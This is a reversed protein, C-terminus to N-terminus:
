DPGAHEPLNEYYELSHAAKPYGAPLPRGSQTQFYLVSADRWWAAEREQTALFQTVEDFRPSDVLGRLGAWTARMGSVAKVGRDYRHVLENWLTEGDKMKYDWGVHHFWLLYMEPTTEVANWQDRLPARYQGVYNSGRASREFGIGDPGAQHYTTADRNGPKKNHRGWVGPGYHSTRTLLHLGLPTMYDVAAERSGMMMSVVPGVISEANGFTQRTWEEAITRASLDPEWAMRGFVYWNAQDFVSGCWNQDSGVNSVGAIGGLRRHNLSGEVAKAVTSGAGHEYTDATLAEEYLPGLYVLHTQYGLYEKTVEVELMLSTKPMAGFLPSFPERPQFDLPGNKVQLLVNDRFKGDLPVFEDYAEKMRDAAPHTSYVFARWMVVGHHPELAEALMNAGEAHTRHYDLPGPQGEANAKVLFGGFDPIAQYIEDVKAHWWQRVGPDLPDANALGGLQMPASWRASLYVRVGYPRLASAVAAAKQIYAPSLFVADSNVNNLVSGNVGISANARAYDTYRQSLRQPLANWDWISSGAYGREVSENANDWHDLIRLPMKPASSVDLASVPQRTQILRLFAYVGYLVGVDTNAAIFTATHGDLTVSRLLYGEPGLPALPLHLGAVPSSSAPTGLVVAGDGATKGEPVAVGLLGSLGTQLEAAATDLTPSSTGIVIARAVARYAGVAAPEVPVYRQWLSYSSVEAVPGPPEARIATGAVGTSDTTNEVLSAPAAGAQTSPPTCAVLAALALLVSRKAM